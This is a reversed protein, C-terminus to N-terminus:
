FTRLVEAVTLELARSAARLPRLIGSAHAYQGIGPQRLHRLATTNRPTSVPPSDPPRFALAPGWITLADQRRRLEAHPLRALLDRVDVGALVAAEPVYVWMEHYPVIHPYALQRLFATDNRFVVPICGLQISEYFSKRTLTDGSPELCFVAHRKAEIYSAYRTGAVGKAKTRPGSGGHDSDATSSKPLLERIGTCGPTCVGHCEGCHVCRRHPGAKIATNLILLPRQAGRSSRTASREILALYPMVVNLNIHSARSLPQQEWSVIRLQAYLDPWRQLPNCSRKCLSKSLPNCVKPYEADCACVESAAMFFRPHKSAAPPFRQMWPAITRRFDETLTDFSRAACAHRRVFYFPVYFLDAEEADVVINPYSALLEWHFYVDADYESRFPGVGNGFFLKCRQLLNTNFRAPLPLIFVAPVPADRLAAQLSMLIATCCVFYLVTNYLITCTYNHEHVIIPVRFSYECWDYLVLPVM